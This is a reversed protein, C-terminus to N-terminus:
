IFVLYLHTNLGQYGHITFLTTYSWIQTHMKRVLIWVVSFKPVQVSSKKKMFINWTKLSSVSICIKGPYSKIFNIDQKTRESLSFCFCIELKEVTKTYYISNNKWLEMVCFRSCFEMWTLNFCQAPSALLLWEGYVIVTEGSISFAHGKCEKHPVPYLGKIWHGHFCAISCMELLPLKLLHFFNNEFFFYLFFLLIM